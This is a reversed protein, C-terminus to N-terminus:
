SQNDFATFIVNNGITTNGNVIIRNGAIEQLTNEFQTVSEGYITSNSGFNLIAGPEILLRSNNKLYLQTGERFSLTNGSTVIVDETIAVIGGTDLDSSLSGFILTPYELSTTNAYINEIWDQCQPTAIPEDEMTAEWTFAEFMSIISDNNIDATAYLIENYDIEDAPSRGNTVSYMHFDFEGHLFMIEHHGEDDVYTLIEEEQVPLNNAERARENYQSATIVINKKTDDHLDDIFGGGYCQQMWFVRKECQIGSILDSFEYDYMLGDPHQEDPQM